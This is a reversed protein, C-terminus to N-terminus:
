RKGKRTQQGAIKIVEETLDLASAGYIIASPNRELILIYKGEEVMKKVIAGM